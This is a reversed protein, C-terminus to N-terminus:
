FIIKLHNALEVNQILRINVQFSLENDVTKDSVSKLVSSKPLLWSEFVYKEFCISVLFLVHLEPLSYYSTTRLNPLM